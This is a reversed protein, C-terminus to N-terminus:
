ASRTRVNSAADSVLTCEGGSGSLVGIRRGGKYYKM